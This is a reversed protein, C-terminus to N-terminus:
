YLEIQKKGDFERMDWESITQLHSRRFLWSIEDYYLHKPNETIAKFEDMNSQTSIFLSIDNDYCTNILNRLYSKQSPSIPISPNLNDITVHRTLAYENDLNTESDFSVDIKRIHSLFNDFYSIKVENFSMNKLLMQRLTLIISFQRNLNTSFIILNKYKEQYSDDSFVSARLNSYRKPVFKSLGNQFERIEIDIKNLIENSWYPFYKDQFLCNENINRDVKENLFPLNNRLKKLYLQNTINEIENEYLFWRKVISKLQSKQSQLRNTIKDIENQRRKESYQSTHFIISLTNEITQFNSEYSM